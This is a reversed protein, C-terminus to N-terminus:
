RDETRRIQAIGFLSKKSEESVTMSHTVEPSESWEEFAANNHIDDAIVFGSPALHPAVSQFEYRMNRYTHLSDHIFIDVPSAQFLVEALRRKSTGRYLSWRERLRSPVLSGTLDDAGARLEPLDISYLRGDGNTDLAQLMYATTVGYAVGTEVVSSPKTARVLLYCILALSPGGHHVQSIAVSEHRHLKAQQFELASTLEKLSPEDLFPALDQGLWASLEMLATELSIPSYHGTKHFRQGVKNDLSSLARDIALTPDKISLELLAPVKGLAIRRKREVWHAFDPM